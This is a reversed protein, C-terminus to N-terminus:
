LERKLKQYDYRDWISRLKKQPTRPIMKSIGIPKCSEKPNIDIHIEFLPSQSTKNKENEIQVLIRSLFSKINTNIFSV